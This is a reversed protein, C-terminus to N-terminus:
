RQHQLEGSNGFVSAFVVIFIIPMLILWFFTGKEKLLLQIEKRTFSTIM